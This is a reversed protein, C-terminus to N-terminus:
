GVKRESIRHNINQGEGKKVGLIKENSLKIRQPENSKDTFIKM